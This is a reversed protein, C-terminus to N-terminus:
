PAVGSLSFSATMTKQAGSYGDAVWSSSHSFGSGLQYLDTLYIQVDLADPTRNYLQIYATSPSGVGDPYFNAIVNNESGAPSLANPPRNTWTSGWNTTGTIRWNAAPTQKSRSDLRVTIFNGNTSPTISVVTLVIISTPTRTLSSSFDGATFTVAAVRVSYAADNTLGTLTYALSASGTLAYQPSGGTPTYEILYNTIAHGHTNSPASWSLEILSDGATAALNTPAVPGRPWQDLARLEQAERLTFVGRTTTTTFTPPTGIIYGGRGRM